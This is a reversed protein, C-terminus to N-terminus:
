KGLAKRVSMRTMRARRALETETVGSEAIIAGTLYAMAEREARRAEQWAAALEDLTADGVLVQLAGSMAASRADPDAAYRAAVRDALVAFARVESDRM